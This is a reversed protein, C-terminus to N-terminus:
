RGPKWKHGCNQCVNMPKGSGIFGTVLSFGRTTTGISTSGCKPCRPVKKPATYCGDAKAQTRLASIKMGFDIINNKKLEVMADLFAPDKSAHEILFYEEATIGFSTTPINCRPCIYNDAEEISSLLYRHNCKYCKCVFDNLAM